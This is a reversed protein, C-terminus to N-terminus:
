DLKPAFTSALAACQGTEVISQQSINPNGFTARFCFGFFGKPTSTQAGPTMATKQL